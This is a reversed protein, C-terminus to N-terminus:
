ISLTQNQKLVLHFQRFDLSVAFNNYAKGGHAKISKNVIDRAKDQAFLTIPLIFLLLLFAKKM